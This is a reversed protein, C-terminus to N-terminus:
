AYLVYLVYLVCLFMYFMYFMECCRIMKVKNRPSLSPSPQNFQGVSDAHTTLHFEWSTIEQKLQDIDGALDVFRQDLEGAWSNWRLNLLGVEVSVRM